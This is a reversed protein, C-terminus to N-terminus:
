NDVRRYLGLNQEALTKLFVDLPSGPFGAGVGITYLSIRRMKNTTTVATVIDAPAVIKGDTPAGDSLFYIAETDFAFAMELADFSATTARTPQVNVFGIAASKNSATAPVLQRQWVATRKNFVVLGFQVYDPLGNIARILERKAAAIRAGGMSASTDLVFVLREAFLPINYYSGATGETLVSRYATEISRKPYEFTAQAESWWRKWAADDMGFIQDTVKTLHEVADARAEGGVRDMMGILAGVAEKSQIRALAAVVARRVAVSDAFIGTDSLRLLPLVDAPRHSAALEDILTMVPLTGNKSASVEGLLEDVERRTSRLDSCLLIALTPGATLGGDKSQAAKRAILLLTECVENNDNLAVLAEHAAARVSAAPDDLSSHILRVSEEIPFKKLRKVAEVRDAAQKSRLLLQVDPKVRNFEEIRDGGAATGAAALALCAVLSIRRM